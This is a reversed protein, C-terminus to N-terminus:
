YNLSSFSSQDRLKWKIIIRPKSVGLFIDGWFRIDIEFILREISTIAFNHLPGFFVKEIKAKSSLVM